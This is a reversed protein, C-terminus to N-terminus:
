FPPEEQLSLSYHIYDEIKLSSEINLKEMVKQSATNSIHITFCVYNIDKKNYLYNIFAKIAESMFGKKRQDSKTAYIVNAVYGISIYAYIMGIIEEKKNNQIIYFFDNEYDVPVSLLFDLDDIDEFDFLAVYKKTDKDNLLYFLEEKDSSKPERLILRDTKINEM